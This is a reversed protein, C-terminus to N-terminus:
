ADKGRKDVFMSGLERQIKIGLEGWKGPLSRFFFLM